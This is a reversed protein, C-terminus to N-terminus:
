CRPWCSSRRTFQSKGRTGPIPRLPLFPGPQFTVFLALVFLTKGLSTRKKKYCYKNVLRRGENNYDIPVFQKLFERASLTM